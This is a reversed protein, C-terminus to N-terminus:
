ATPRHTFKTISSSPVVTKSLTNLYQSPIISPDVFAQKIINTLNSNRLAYPAAKEKRSRRKKKRKNDATDIRRKPCYKYNPYNCSHLKKCVNALDMWFQKKISSIENWRNSAIISSDGLTINKARSTKSPTWLECLDLTTKINSYKNIIDGVM